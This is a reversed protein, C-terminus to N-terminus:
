SNCDGYETNHLVLFTIHLSAFRARFRRRKQYEDLSNVATITELPELKVTDIEKFCSELGLVLIFILIFRSDLYRKLLKLRINYMKRM